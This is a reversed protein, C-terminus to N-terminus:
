EETEQNQAQREGCVSCFELHVSRANQCNNCTTKLQLSCSPCYNETHHIKYSCRPCQNDKLRRRAVRLPNFVRKQIFYVIGGFIALILAVTGYYVIYRLIPVTMFLEFIREIWEMPLIEYLFTLVVQLFLVGTASMAATFIITYPSDKRKAKLYRWTTFVFLPLTFLVMLGFVKFKYWASQSQYKEYAQDYAVEINRVQPTISEVLRDRQATLSSIERNAASIQSRLQIITGQNDTRDYLVEEEAIKEQLSLEYERETKSINREYTSINRQQQSISSNFSSIGKLTSEIAAFQTDLGYLTDVETFRCNCDSYRSSCGNYSPLSEVSLSRVCYAPSVPRDIVSRLDWFVTQGVGVLFCFMLFLMIYGLKTTRKESVEEYGKGSDRSFIKKFLSM